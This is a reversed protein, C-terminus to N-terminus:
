ARSCTPLRRGDLDVNWSETGHWVPSPRAGAQCRCHRGAAGRRGHDPARPRACPKEGRVCRAPALSQALDEHAAGQVSQPPWPRPAPFRLARRRRGWPADLVAGADRSALSPSAPGAHRSRRAIEIKLGVAAAGIEEMAVTGAANARTGPDGSSWRRRRPPSLELHRIASPLRALHLDGGAGLAAGARRREPMLPTGSREFSM